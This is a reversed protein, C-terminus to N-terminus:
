LDRFVMVAPGDRSGVVLEAGEDGDLEGPALVEPSTAAIVKHVQECVFDGDGNGMLVSVTPGGTAVFLDIFLDANGHGFVGGVLPSSSLYTQPWQWKFSGIGRWVRALGGGDDVRLLVLEPAPLGGLDGALAQTWAPADLEIVQDILWTLDPTGGFIKLAAPADPAPLALLDPIKDLSINQVTAAVSGGLEGFVKEPAFGGAGDGAWVSVSDFQGGLAVLDIDGDGDLDMASVTRPSASAPLLPGATFMGGMGFLVVLDGSDPRAVALDVQADGDLDAAAVRLDTQPPGVDTVGGPTFVGAGDNFALEIAAVAPLAAFIDLDGDGDLDALGLASPTHVLDWQSVEVQGPPCLGLKIPKPEPLCSEVDCNYGEFCDEDAYCRALCNGSYCTYDAPCDEDAYCDDYDRDHCPVCRGNQCFCNCDSDDVCQPAPGTTTTTPDVTPETTSGNPGTTPGTTTGPATGTTAGTTATDDDTSPDGATTGTMAVPQPGCAGLLGLTAFWRRDIPRIRSRSLMTWRRM